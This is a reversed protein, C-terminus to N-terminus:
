EKVIVKEIEMVYMKHYDAAAYNSLLSKDVFACEKIDDAYLKRCVLAM